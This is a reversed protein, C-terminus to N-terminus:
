EQVVYERVNAQEYEEEHQVSAEREYLDAAEFIGRYKGARLQRM